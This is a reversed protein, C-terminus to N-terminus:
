NTYMAVEAYDPEEAFISQLLQKRMRCLICYANTQYYDDTECSQYELSDILRSVKKDSVKKYTPKYNFRSDNEEDYRVDVSRVNQAFLETAVAAANNRDLYNYEGNVKIWLKEGERSANVFYNVIDNIDQESM